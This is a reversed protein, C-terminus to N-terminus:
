GSVWEPNKARIPAPVYPHMIFTGLIYTKISYPQTPIVEKNKYTFIMDLSSFGWFNILLRHFYKWFIILNAADHAIIQCTLTYLHVNITSLQSEDM